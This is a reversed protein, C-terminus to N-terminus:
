EPNKGYKSTADTYSEVEGLSVTGVPHGKHDREFARVRVQSEFDDFVQVYEKCQHCARVVDM